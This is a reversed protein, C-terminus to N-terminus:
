NGAHSVKAADDADLAAKAKPSKIGKLARRMAVLRNHLSANRINASALRQNFWERDKQWDYNPAEPNQFQMELDTSQPATM